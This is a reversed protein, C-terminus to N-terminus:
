EGKKGKKCNEYFSKYTKMSTELNNVTNEDQNKKFENLTELLEIQLKYVKKSQKDEKKKLLLNQDDLRIVYADLDQFWDDSCLDARSLLKYLDNVNEGSFVCINEIKEEKKKEVEDQQCSKLVFFLLFLLMLLIVIDRVRIKFYKCTYLVKNM